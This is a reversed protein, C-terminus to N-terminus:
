AHSCRSRASLVSARSFLVCSCFRCAFNSQYKEASPALSRAIKVRLDQRARSTPVVRRGYEDDEEDLVFSDDEDDEDGDDDHDDDDDEDGCPVSLGSGIRRM